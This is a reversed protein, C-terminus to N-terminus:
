GYQKLLAPTAPDGALMRGVDANRVQWDSLGYSFLWGPYGAMVRRGGLTPVPETPEPAVLFVSRPQTHGRVWAAVQVGRADTLGFSNVSTDLSRALDLGGALMLVFALGVALVRATAGQRLLGALLAGVLLAGFLAWYAFFKTNDWDWPQFVLFNPVLFWLWIPAMHLALRQPLLGRWAFAAVLAPIFLGTNKLWFLVPGDQHGGTDALWWVQVHLTAAGGGLMWTVAPAGLALAPVFYALWERRPTLLAWYAALAVVTGYAHLQFLPTLGAVVGALIFAPWAPRELRSAQWLMAMVLLALSFGFLVSRQPLLWALVPNLWQLNLTSSQTFLQPLHRLAAPGSRALDGWLYVFGLGGGLAFVLVGLAAAGRSGILRVGAVYMVVPFALGLLGSTLVLSSTLSTGLPVLTAAFFDVMFPYSMPHAPDIPFVPPFNAGYAFSGAYALHASWDGFVGINGGTLGGGSDQYARSLLVLTFPWAVLLLLWLPWPERRAWRAAAERVEQEVLRRGRLWGPVSLGLSLLLAAFVTSVTLGWALALLFGVASLVVAGVVTGYALREEVTLALGSLYTLGTGCVVCGALVAFAGGLLVAAAAALVAVVVGATAWAAANPRRAPSLDLDAAM